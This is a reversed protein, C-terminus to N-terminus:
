KDLRFGVCVPFRPLGEDTNEFYRIEAIKGIYEDKDELIEEREAHSFKLSAKFQQTDGLQCVLVGQEPRRDSPIVDVVEVSLDHFTKFKLLNSSRGNIKYDADGHRIITGEYGESLFRSHLQEVHAPSTVLYTPVLEIFSFNVKSFIKELDKYRTHFDVAAVGDYVHFKVQETQGKRYKKIIKMNEQFTLGHAYLEGDPIYGLLQRLANIEPYLHHLNSINKGQRSMLYSDQVPLCRMGDLKPQAYVPKSWDIKKEEKEYVKALMPLVVLTNIAEERTKFYGEDLKAVMKAQAEKVAQQTATTANSKGVNKPHCISEARVKKGDELGSVQIVKEGQAFIELTRIKNRSDKRYLKMTEEQKITTTAVTKAM